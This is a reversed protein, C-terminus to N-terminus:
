LVPRRVSQSLEQNPMGLKNILCVCVCGYNMALPFHPDKVWYIAQNDTSM